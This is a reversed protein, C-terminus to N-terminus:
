SEAGAALRRLRALAAHDDDEFEDGRSAMREDALDLAFTLFQREAATLETTPQTADQVGVAPEDAAPARFRGCGCFAFVCAANGTHWNLAHDCNDCPTALTVPGADPQQGSAQRAADRVGAVAAAAINRPDDIVIGSGHQVECHKYVAAAIAEMMPDGDQWVPLDAPQDTM